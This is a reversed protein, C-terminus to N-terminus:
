FNSPVFAKFAQKSTDAISHQPITENNPEDESNLPCAIFADSRSYHELYKILQIVTRRRKDGLKGGVDCVITNIRNAILM